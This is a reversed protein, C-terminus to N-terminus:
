SKFYRLIHNTKNSLICASMVARSVLPATGNSLEPLLTHNIPGDGGDNTNNVSDVVSTSLKFPQGNSQSQQLTRSSLRSQYKPPPQSPPVPKIHSPIQKEQFDKQPKTLEQIRQPTGLAQGVHFFPHRLAQFM